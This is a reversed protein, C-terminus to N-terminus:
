KENAIVSEDTVGREGLPNRIYAVVGLMMMVM